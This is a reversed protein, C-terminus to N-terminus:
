INALVDDLNNLDDIKVLRLYNNICKSSEHTRFIISIENEKAALIDTDADGIFVIENNNYNNQSMITKVHDIKKMPSGYVYKFYNNIGKKYLIEIIEDQPTGTSIYFEYYKYNQKIFEIAGPVYPADIVKQVVLESFKNSLEEIQCKNLARGLFIKHYLKFKEYRSIGGHSLHHNVVKKVIQNGYESYITKFSETKINVSESIVGDFDFIIAKIQHRKRFNPIKDSM